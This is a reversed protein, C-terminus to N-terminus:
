LILPEEDGSVVVSALRGADFQVLGTFEPDVYDPPYVRSPSLRMDRTRRMSWQADHM